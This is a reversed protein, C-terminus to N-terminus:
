IEVKLVEWVKRNPIGHSFFYNRRTAKHGHEESGQNARIPMPARTPLSCSINSKIRARTSSNFMVSPDKDKAPGNRHQLGPEPDATPSKMSLACFDNITLLDTKTEARLVLMLM